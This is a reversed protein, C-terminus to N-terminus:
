SMSIRNLNVLYISNDLYNDFYIINLILVYQQEKVWRILDRFAIDFYSM